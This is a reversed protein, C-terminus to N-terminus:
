RNGVARWSETGHRFIQGHAHSLGPEVHSGHGLGRGTHEYQLRHSSVRTPRGSRHAQRGLMWALRGVYQHKGLDSEVLDCKQTFDVRRDSSVAMATYTHRLPQPSLIALEQGVCAQAVSKAM